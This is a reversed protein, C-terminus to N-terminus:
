HRRYLLIMIFVGVTVLAATMFYWLNQKLKDSPREVEEEKVYRSAFESIASVVKKYEVPHERISSELELHIFVAGISNAYKGQTNTAAELEKLNGENAIGTTFDRDKFISSLKRVPSTAVGNGRSLVIQPYGPENILTFGHIQIITTSDGTVTEHVAQFISRTSHAVDSSMDRNARRRTGSMLFAKAKSRTFAIIGISDTRLDDVPHPVEIVLDRNGSGARFIYLGWGRNQGGTELIAYYETKGDTLKIIDYGLRSAESVSKSLKANDNDSISTMVLSVLQRMQNLNTENPPIYMESDEPIIKTNFSTVLDALTGNEEQILGQALVPQADISSFFLIALILLIGAHLTWLQIILARENITKM